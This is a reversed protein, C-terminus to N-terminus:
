DRKSHHIIAGRVNRWHTRQARKTYHCGDQLHRGWRRKVGPTDHFVIAGDGQACQELMLRNYQTVTDNYADMAQRIRAPDREHRDWQLAARGERFIIPMIVVKRAGANHIAEALRFVQDRLPTANLLNPGIVDNSGAEIVCINTNTFRNPHATVFNDMQAIRSLKNGQNDYGIFKVRDKDLGMNRYLGSPDKSFRELRRCFSHGIIIHQDM